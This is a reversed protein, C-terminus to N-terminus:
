NDNIDLYGDGYDEFFPDRYDEEVWEDSFCQDEADFLNVLSEDICQSLISNDHATLCKQNRLSELTAEYSGIPDCSFVCAVLQDHSLKIM